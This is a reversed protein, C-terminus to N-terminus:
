PLNDRAFVDIRIREQAANIPRDECYALLVRAASRVEHGADLSVGAARVVDELTRRSM